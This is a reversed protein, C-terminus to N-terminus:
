KQKGGKRSKKISVLHKLNKIVVDQKNRKDEKEINM